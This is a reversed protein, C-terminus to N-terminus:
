YWIDPLKWNWGTFTSSFYNFNYKQKSFFLSFQRPKKKVVIELLLFVFTM